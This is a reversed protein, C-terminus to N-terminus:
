LTCSIADRITLHGWFNPTDRFIPLSRHSRPVIEFKRVVNSLELGKVSSRVSGM